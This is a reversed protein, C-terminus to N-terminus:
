YIRRASIAAIAPKGIKPLFEIRLGEGARVEVQVTRSAATLVGFDAAPDLDAFAVVGNVVVTFVRQGPKQDRIWEAFGLTVEYTGDPVEFRYADMGERSVQFLADENTGYIRHHTGKAEGGVFGRDAVWVVGAADNYSYHGGANVAIVDKRDTYTIDVADEGRGRAQVRNVGDRLEVTWEATRNSVKRSGVSKGNVFLEVEDSNSYVWVPQLRDESGSGARRNWERAIYLVADKVLAAKYYYAVDKPTRNFFYLGKQNLAHKTDHRLESGFDFQNWVASGLVYRRAEIQPFSLRHFRQQHESSFDFAVPDRAHVREDSDAGYESVILPRKPRRSHIGDLFPGLSDIQEYYWGFYLNLGLIDPIDGIGYDTDVEDRSLAMVTARSPDEADARAELRRTLEAVRDYYGSPNPNPKTLLVENMYGWFLISPHNYHQRIMETLMREANDAFAPSMSILNVVPIEEWVILGLRDTEELLAPDQPYHALRLFNFGNEKVIRVDRRHFEDPLANGLGEFDQHRNTGVLKVPKGNLSFGNQADFRFTRFGLPNEVSDVLRGGAHIETRVRYLYPDEPSWLHPKPIARTEHTFRESGGAAIRTESSTSTIESGEAGLLRNVVRVRAVKDSQNVVTGSIHATGRETTRVFVGPSAHDTVTVHIEETALLWVDRYIGGYFTFDANLPPIDQSHSNDVRVAVANSGNWAMLDTVEFVFATYGGVHRGAHHSNVYVDAVQNAGEFYLFLRKGRLAPDLRLSKRYWGEGRRYGPTKDFADSVNWTHPLNVSIAASGDRDPAYQWQENITYRVRSTAAVGSSM